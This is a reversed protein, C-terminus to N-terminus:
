GQDLAGCLEDCPIVPRQLFMLVQIQHVPKQLSGMASNLRPDYGMGGWGILGGERRGACLLVGPLKLGGNLQRESGELGM